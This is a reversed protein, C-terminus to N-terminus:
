SSPRARRPEGLPHEVRHDALAQHEVEALRHQRGHQGRHAQAARRRPRPRPPTSRPWAPARRRSGTSSPRRVGVDPVVDLGRHRQEDAPSCSAASRAKAQTSAAGAARRSTASSTRRRRPRPRWRRSWCTPTGRRRPRAGSAPVGRGPTRPGTSASPAGRAPSPRTSAAATRRCRRPAPTPPRGARCRGGPRGARRRTSRGGPAAPRADRQGLQHVVRLGLPLEGAAPQPVRQALM